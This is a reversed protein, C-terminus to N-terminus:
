SKESMDGPSYRDRLTGKSWISCTTSAAMGVASSARLRAMGSVSGQRKSVRRVQVCDCTTVITRQQCGADRYRRPLRKRGNPFELAPQVRTASCM